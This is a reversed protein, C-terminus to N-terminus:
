APEGREQLEYLAAASSLTKAKVFAKLDSTSKRRMAATRKHNIAM